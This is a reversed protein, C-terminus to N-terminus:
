QLLVGNILYYIGVTLSCTLVFLTQFAVAWREVGGPVRGLLNQLVFGSVAFFTGILLTGWIWYGVYGYTRQLMCVPCLHTPLQYIYTGFFYVVSYYGVLLLGVSAILQILRYRLLGAAISLLFLLYFLVLLTGTDLGLPLGAAEGAVGFIRSCCQVPTLTSINTLFLWDILSEIAVAAYIVLYFRLKTVLHPHDEAKLDERDILLWLGAFFLIAVKLLLLPSGYINANLVGVGCMAGPVLASLRDVTHTFFPLLILKLALAAQIILGVLYAQKELTYQSTTTADFNWYTLIRFVHLLAITLMFLLVAEACLFTIVEGALLIM